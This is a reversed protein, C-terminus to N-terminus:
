AGIELHGKKLESSVIKVIYISFEEVRRPSRNYVVRDNVM